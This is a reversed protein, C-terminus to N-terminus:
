APGEPPGAGLIERAIQEHERASLGVVALQDDLLLASLGHVISWAAVARRQVTADEASPDLSRAGALLVRFAADSAVRLASDQARAHAVEASFMLRFLAANEAAFRVYAVGMEQFGGPGATSGGSAALAAALREFGRAAVAGLVAERDAFHHYAASHTVGATRAIGRLTLGSAGKRRLILEASDLLAERLNGHHYPRRSGSRPTMPGDHEGINGVALDEAIYIKGIALHAASPRSGM